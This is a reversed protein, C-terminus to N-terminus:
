SRPSCRGRSRAGRARLHHRDVRVRALIMEELQLPCSDGSEVEVGEEGEEALSSRPQGPVDVLRQAGHELVVRPAEPVPLDVEELRAAAPAAEVVLAGRAQHGPEHGEVDIVDGPPAIEEIPHQGRRAEGVLHGEVFRLEARANQALAKKRAAPLGATSARSPTGPGCRCITTFARPPIAPNKRRENSWTM